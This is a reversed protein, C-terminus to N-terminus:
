EGSTSQRNRDDQVGKKGLEYFTNRTELAKKGNIVGRKHLVYNITSYIGAHTPHSVDEDWSSDSFRMSAVYGHEGNKTIIISKIM